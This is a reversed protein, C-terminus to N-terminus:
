DDGGGLSERAKKIAGTVKEIADRWEGHSAKNEAEALRKQAEAILDPRGGQAIATDIEALAQLHLAQYQSELDASAVTPEPSGPASTVVSQGESDGPVTTAAIAADGTPAAVGVYVERTVTRIIPDPGEKAPLPSGLGECIPRLADLAAQQVATISGDTEAGALAQGLPGCAAAVDESTAEGVEGFVVQRVEVTSITTETTTTTMAAESVDGLFVASLVASLPVLILGVAFSISLRRSSRGAAM